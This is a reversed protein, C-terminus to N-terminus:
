IRDLALKELLFVGKPNLYEYIFHTLKWELKTKINKIIFCDQDFSYYCLIEFPLKFEIVFTKYINFAYNNAEQPSQLDIAIVFKEYISNIQSLKLREM